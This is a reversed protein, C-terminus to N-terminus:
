KEIYIEPVEIQGEAVYACDGTVELKCIEGAKLKACARIMSPRGMQVGQIINIRLTDRAGGPRLAVAGVLAAAASGTAPDEAVGLAPAFMRAYLEGGDILTGSFVFVQAGWRSSFVRVWNAQDLRARDVSERSNLQVFTFRVGAGACFSEGVDQKALTLASAIDDSNPVDTSLEPSRDLGFTATLLDDQLAVSVPVVGIGEELKLNGQACIGAVVLACATGITPHGAFPLEAGPTFIRVRKTCNSDAAPLVFTTEAYNFERAIKQMGESSIGYADILVALQNGGFPTSSFVDIVIYRYRM